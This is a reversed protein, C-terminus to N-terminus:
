FAHRQVVPFGYLTALPDLRHEGDFRFVVIIIQKEFIQFRRAKLSYLKAATLIHEGFFELGASQLALVGREHIEGRVRTEGPALLPNILFQAIALDSQEDIMQRLTNPLNTIFHPGLTRARKMGQRYQAMRHINGLNPRIACFYSDPDQLSGAQLLNRPGCVLVLDWSCDALSRGRRDEDFAESRDKLYLIRKLKLSGRSRSRRCRREYLLVPWKRVPMDVPM